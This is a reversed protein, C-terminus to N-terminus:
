QRINNLDADLAVQGEEISKSYVTINTDDAFMRATTHELCNPLDNIYILFLHPCLISGQPVGYKLYKLTFLEGSVQCQDSLIIQFAYSAYEQGTILNYLDRDM